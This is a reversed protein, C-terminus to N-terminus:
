PSNPGPWTPKEYRGPRLTLSQLSKGPPLRFPLRSPCAATTYVYSAKTFTLRAETFTYTSNHLLHPHLLLITSPFTKYHRLPVLTILHHKLYIEFANTHHLPDLTIYHNRYAFHTYVIPTPTSLKDTAEHFTFEEPFTDHLLIPYSLQVEHTQHTNHM